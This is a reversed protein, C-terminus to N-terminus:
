LAEWENLVTWRNFNNDFIKISVKNNCREGDEVTTRALWLEFQNLSLLYGDQGVLMGELKLDDTYGELLTPKEELEKLTIAQLQQLTHFDQLDYAKLQTDFSQEHDASSSNQNKPNLATSNNLM